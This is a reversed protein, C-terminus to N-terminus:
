RATALRLYRALRRRLGRAYKFRALVLALAAGRIHLRPHLYLVDTNDLSFAIRQFGLAALRADIASVKSRMEPMLFDHFEITIQDLRRLTDDDLSEFLGVEAGEIDVKLLAVRDVDHRVLLDRFRVGPVELRHAGAEGFQESACGHTNLHLVVPSGDASIAASELTFNPHAPMSAVLSPVPEVALVRCGYKAIIEHSFAGHNAGLDVVQSTPRLATACFSHKQVSDITTIAAM